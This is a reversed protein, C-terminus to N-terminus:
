QHIPNVTAARNDMADHAMLVQALRMPLVGILQHRILQFDPMHLNRKEVHAQLQRNGQRKHKTHRVRCPRM